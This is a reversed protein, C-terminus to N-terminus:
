IVEYLVLVGVSTTGTLTGGTKRIQVGEGATLAALLGAGYTVNAAAAGATTVTSGNAAAVAVTVADVPSSNTDSIRIDTAGAATGAFVLRILLPRISRGAVGPILELGANVQAVTASGVFSQVVTGGRVAGGDAVNIAGGPAVELSDGGQPRYVKTNHSM